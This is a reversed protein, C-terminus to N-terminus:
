SWVSKSSTNSKCPQAICALEVAGVNVDIECLNALADAHLFTLNMEPIVDPNRRSQAASMQRMGLARRRDTKDRVLLMTMWVRSM